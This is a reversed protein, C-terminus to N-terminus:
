GKNEARLAWATQNRSFRIFREGQARKPRRYCESHTVPGLAERQASTGKQLFVRAVFNLYAGM